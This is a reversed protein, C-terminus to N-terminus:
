SKRRQIVPIKILASVAKSLSDAEAYTDCRELVHPEKSKETWILLVKQKAILSSDSDTEEEEISIAGFASFPKTWRKIWPWAGDEVQVVHKSGDLVANYWSFVGMWCGAAMVGGIILMGLLIPLESLLDNFRGRVLEMVLGVLAIGVLIIGIVLFPALFIRGIPSWVNPIHLIKGELRWHYAPKDNKDAAPKSRMTSSHRSTGVCRFIAACPM